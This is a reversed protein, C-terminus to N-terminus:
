ENMVGVRRVSVFAFSHRAHHLTEKTVVGPGVLTPWVDGVVEKNITEAAHPLATSAAQAARDGSAGSSSVLAATLENAEDAIM